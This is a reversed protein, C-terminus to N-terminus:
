QESTENYPVGVIRCVERGTMGVKKALSSFRQFSMNWPGERRYTSIVTRSSQLADSIQYDDLQKSAKGRAFAERFAVAQREHTTMKLAPM